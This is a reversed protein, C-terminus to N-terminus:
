ISKGAQIRNPESSEPAIKSKAAIQSKCLQVYPRARPEAAARWRHRAYIMHTRTRTRARERTAAACVQARAGVGGSSGALWGVPLYM